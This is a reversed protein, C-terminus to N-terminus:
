SARTHLPVHKKVTLGGSLICSDASHEDRLFKIANIVPITHRFLKQDGEAVVDEISVYSPITGWQYEFVKNGLENTVEIKFM